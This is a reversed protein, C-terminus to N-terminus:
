ANEKESIQPNDVDVLVQEGDVRVPFIQVPDMAPLEDPLGTRV